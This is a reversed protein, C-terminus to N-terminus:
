SSFIVWHIRSDLNTRILYINIQHLITKRDEEVKFVCEISEIWSFEKKTQCFINIEHDSWQQSVNTSYISPNAYDDLLFRHM